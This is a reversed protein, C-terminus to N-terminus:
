SRAFPPPKRQFCGMGASILAVLFVIYREYLSFPTRETAAAPLPADITGAVGLPLSKVIRGYADVVASIGTNAARVLPVGQEVARARAMELHQRPGSTDGFWADNTVNLLWGPWAGDSLTPFISEYCVLPRLPPLGTLTHNRGSKGPTFDMTGHTIKELPLISRLPVFEGFPVLKSKDYVFDVRGEGDVGQISNFVALNDTEVSGAIRTTGTLLMGGPPVLEALRMAWTDGSVFPYPMASEPWIVHTVKKKAPSLTLTALKQLGEMQYQPDWKMKQAIAPQVLRLRVGEVERRPAHAVRDYGYGLAALFVLVLLACARRTSASAGSALAAPILAILVTFFGTFYVGVLAYFQLTIESFSWAYGTLNWPFGWLIHGRLWEASLWILAFMWAGRVGGKRRLPFYALAALAPFLAYVAPIGLMAFPVIWGFREPEVMLSNSIWYLGCVFHGMGFWWGDLAARRPDPTAALLWFLGCFGVPLAPLLYLPPLALTLCVGFLMAAFNRWWGGTAGIALALGHLTSLRLPNDNAPTLM